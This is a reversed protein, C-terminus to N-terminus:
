NKIISNSKHKPSSDNLITVDSDKSGRKSFALVCKIAAEFINKWSHPFHNCVELTRNTELSYRWWFNAYCKIITKRYRLKNLVEENSLRQRLFNICNSWYIKLDQVVVKLLKVVTAFNSSGNLHLSFWRWSRQFQQVVEWLWNVEAWTLM